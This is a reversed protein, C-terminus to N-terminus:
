ARVESICLDDWISHLYVEIIPKCGNRARIKTNRDNLEDVIRILQLEHTKM